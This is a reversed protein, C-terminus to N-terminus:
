TAELGDDINVPIRFLYVLLGVFLSAAVAIKIEYPLTPENIQSFGGEIIGAIVLLTATGILINVLAPRMERIQARFSGGDRRFQARAMMLGAMCGFIICPLEISGHPGVWAIFFEMVGDQLYAAAISGLIAGNYFLIVITGIGFTLGLAFGLVMVRINHTFLFTSFAAHEGAGEVSSKGDREMNELREVRESPSMMLHEAPLFVEMTRPSVMTLVFGFMTGALFALVTIALLKKEARITAPFRNRVIDKWTKFPNKEPPPSLNSYARGVLSELYDILAPNGTRTQVLNLDSSVLRYLAFLEEVEAPELGGFGNKDIRDLIEGLRNWRHRRERLFRNFDM